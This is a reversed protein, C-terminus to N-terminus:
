NIKSYLRFPVSGTSSSYYITSARIDEDPGWEENPQLMIYSAGSAKSANFAIYLNGGGVAADNRILKVGYITQVVSAEVTTATLNLWVPTAM